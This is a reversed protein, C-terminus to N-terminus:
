VANLAVSFRPISFHLSDASQSHALLSRVQLRSPVAAAQAAFRALRAGALVRTKIAARAGNSADLVLCRLTDFTRFSKSM